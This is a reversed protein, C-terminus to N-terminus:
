LSQDRIKAWKPCASDMQSGGPQCLPFVWQLSGVALGLTLGSGVPSKKVETNVEM